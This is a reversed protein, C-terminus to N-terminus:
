QLQHTSLFRSFWSEGLIEKRKYIKRARDGM